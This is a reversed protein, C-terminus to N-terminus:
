RAEAQDLRALSHQLLARAVARERPPLAAVDSLDDLRIVSNPAYHYVIAGDPWLPTWRGLDPVDDGVDVLVEPEATDTPAPELPELLAEDAEDAHVDASCSKPFRCCRPDYAGTSSEPWREVCERFRRRASM